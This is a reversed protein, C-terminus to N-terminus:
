DPCREAMMAAYNAEHIKERRLVEDIAWQCGNIAFALLWEDGTPYYTTGDRLVIGPRITEKVLTM